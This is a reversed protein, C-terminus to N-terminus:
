NLYRCLNGEAPLVVQVDAAVAQIAAEAVQIDAVQVAAAQLTAAAQVALPLIVEAPVPTPHHQIAADQLLAEQTLHILDQLLLLDQQHNQRSGTSPQATHVPLPTAEAPLLQGTHLVPTGQLHLL